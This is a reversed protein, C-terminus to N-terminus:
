PQLSLRRAIKVGPRGEPKPEAHRRKYRKSNRRIKIYRRMARASLFFRVDTLGGRRVRYPTNQYTIEPTQKGFRKDLREGSILKLKLM